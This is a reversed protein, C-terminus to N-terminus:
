LDNGITAAIRRMTRHYQKRRGEATGGLQRAIEEWELGEHRKEVLTRSEDNMLQYIEEVMDRCAAQDFPTPEMTPFGSVGDPTDSVRRFDRCQRKEKRIRMALKNRAMTALLAALQAPEDLDFGGGQLRVFFSGLVSQCIDTSDFQRRLAPDSLRTRIAVRIALEYQAVLHAAADDDGNRVRALLDVFESVEM